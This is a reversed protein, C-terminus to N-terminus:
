GWSPRKINAPIPRDPASAVLRLRPSAEVKPVPSGTTRVADALKSAAKSIKGPRRRADDVAKKALHELYDAILDYSDDPLEGADRLRNIAKRMDRTHRTRRWGRERVGLEGISEGTPLFAKVKRIDEGEKIHVILPQGAWDIHNSLEDNTYTCGDIQVYARRYSGSTRRGRVIRTEVAVGLDPSSVTPPVQLRPQLQVSRASMRDRLVDLPCRHGLGSQKEANYNAFAVDVLDTLEEWDINHAIAQGTPDGRM